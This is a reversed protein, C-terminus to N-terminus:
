KSQLINLIQTVVTGGSPPPCSFVTVDNRLDLKLVNTEINVSYDKLDEETILGGNKQFDAAIKKALNGTYFSEPDRQIEQLTQALEHNVITDGEKKPSGNKNTLLKRCFLIYCM